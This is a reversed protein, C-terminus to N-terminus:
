ARGVVVAVTRLLEQPAVPKQLHVQFGASQARARDEPRGYATLAIAPVSGGEDEGLQRVRRILSYGDEGPMGIDSLLVDPRAQRVLDLGSSASSAVEVQAHGRELIVKLLDRTDPEDEVLVIRLGELDPSGDTMEPLASGGPAAIRDSRVAARSATRVPLHVHFTAGRGLGESSADVTGGHLEILQKVIALGLGLGGHRRTASGDAQRFREFVHPLLAPQIGQGSDEVKLEVFRHGENKESASVKVQGGAPTFKIANSLLNWVVQQLRTPDGWVPPLEADVDNLIRVGKSEAAPSATGLAADIVSRLDVPQMDIRLKGAIIRSVDLLDDIIKGQAKANREVIELAHEQKEPPMSGQRLLQVWGLVAMLPTRLEHSITALFEDKLRNAAEVEARAAMERELMEERERKVRQKETTDWVEVVAGIRVGREFIPSTCIEVPFFTGDKRIFCEEIRLYEGRVIANEIACEGRLFPTGDVHSHHLTEHINKGVLEERRYGSTVESAPNAYSCLMREDVMFLASTANEAITQATAAQREAARRETVDSLSGIWERVQGDDIIPVARSALRRWAGDQRRARFEDEHLGPRKMATQWRELVLPTDDPHIASYPGRAALEDETQGSFERWESSDGIVRGEADTRWIIQNTAEVFSRFRREDLSREEAFVARELAQACQTALSELFQHEEDHFSRSESWSLWVCGYTRKATVLPIVMQSGRIRDQAEGVDVPLAPYERRLSERTPFLLIRGETVATAAAPVQEIRQGILQQLQVAGYGVGQIGLIKGKEVRGVAGAAAGLRPVVEVFARAIDDGTQGTAFAANAEQLIRMRDNARKQARFLLANELSLSARKAFEEAVRVDDELFLREGEGTLILTVAGVPTGRAFLPTVIFSRFRFKKLVDRSSSDLPALEVANEPLESMWDTRGERLVLSVGFPEAPDRLMRREYDRMAEAISPDKHEVAVVQLSGDEEVLHVACGDALGPVALSALERLLQNPDLSSVFRASAEALFRARASANEIERMAWMQSRVARTQLTGLFVAFCAVLGTLLGVLLTTRDLLGRVSALSLTHHRVQVGVLGEILQDLESRRPELEDAIKRATTRTLAGESRRAVNEDMAAALRRERTEILRVLRVAESDERNIRSLAAASRERTRRLEELEVPDGTLLFSRAHRAARDTEARLRYVDVVEETDAALRGEILSSARQLVFESLVGLGIAFLAMTAFIVAM